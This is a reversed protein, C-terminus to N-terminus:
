SRSRRISDPSRQADGPVSLQNVVDWFACATSRHMCHNNTGQILTPTRNAMAKITAAVGIGPLRIRTPTSRSGYATAAHLRDDLAGCPLRSRTNLRDHLAPSPFARCPLRSRRNNSHRLDPLPFAGCTQTSRAGLRAVIRLSREIRELATRSLEDCKRRVTLYRGRDGPPSNVHLAYRSFSNLGAGTCRM